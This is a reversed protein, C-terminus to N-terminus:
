TSPLGSPNYQRKEEPISNWDKLFREIGIDTLPHHIIKKFVSHPITAIDAGMMAADRIHLPNRISAVLIETEFGYNMYIRHIEEILAMGDHSIDDLRGVFPSVFTAGAKAVLLAQLPSFCLTLNTKINEASLIKTAKLGEETTPLKVVIQEHISAFFRAEEVMKQAERAVVEVSVPGNVISCIEEITSRFEGGAKAILSPNTTVGDLIGMEQIERIEQVNASDIFLKM